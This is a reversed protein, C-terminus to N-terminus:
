PCSAPATGSIAADASGDPKQPTYSFTASTYALTVREKMAGTSDPGGNVLAKVTVGALNVVLFEIPDKGPKRLTLKATPYTTNLAAGTVLLPSAKDVFKDISLPEGCAPVGPNKKDGAIPGNVGWSWALVEIEGPHKDDTSEGKIDGIKAFIDTAAVAGTAGIAAAAAFAGVLVHHGVRSTGRNSTGDM